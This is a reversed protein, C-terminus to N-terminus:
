QSASCPRTPPTSSRPQRGTRSARSGLRSRLTRRPRATSSRVAGPGAGFAHTVHDAAELLAPHHSLSLYSNSNMRLFEGDSGRLTYRPGRSGRPPVYGSIVREPAKARGEQELAHVDKVLAPNLKDLPM